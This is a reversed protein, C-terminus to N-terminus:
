RSYEYRMEEIMAKDNLPLRVQEQSLPVLREADLSVTKMQRPANPITVSFYHSKQTGKLLDFAVQKATQVEIMLGDAVQYPEANKFGSHDLSISSKAAMQWPQSPRKENLHRFIVDFDYGLKSSFEWITKITPNGKGSLVSTMRSKKWGLDSALMSRNKQAFVMLALLNNAIEDKKIEFPAIPELDSFLDDLYNDTEGNQETTTIATSNTM